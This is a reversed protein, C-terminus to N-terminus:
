KRKRFLMIGNFTTVCEFGAEILKSAEEVTSATKCYFEDNPTQFLAKEINIYVMTSEISKHGLVEKVHIIDRTKHCEMTAKWHRFTHLSIKLPRPNNLKKAIRKWEVYFASSIVKKSAFVKESKKGLNKLM